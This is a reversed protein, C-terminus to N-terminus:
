PPPVTSHPTLSVRPRSLVYSPSPRYSCPKVAPKGEVCSSSPVIRTNTSLRISERPSALRQGKDGPKTMLFPGRAEHIDFLPDTLVISARLLQMPDRLRPTSYREHIEQHVNGSRSLSKAGNQARRCTSTCAGRNWTGCLGAKPWALYLFLSLTKKNRKGKDTSLDTHLPM